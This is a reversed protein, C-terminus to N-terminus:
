KTGEAVADTKKSKVHDGFAKVAQSGLVALVFGTVETSPSRLIPQVDIGFHTRDIHEILSTLSFRYLITWVCVWGIAPVWGAEYFRWLAGAVSCTSRKIIETAHRM